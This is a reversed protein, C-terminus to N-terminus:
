RRLDRIEKLLDTHEYYKIKSDNNIEPNGESGDQEGLYFWFDYVYGQM